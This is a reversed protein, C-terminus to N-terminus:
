SSLFRVLSGATRNNSLCSGSDTRHSKRRVLRGEHYSNKLRNEDRWLPRYNIYHFCERQQRPNTLDFAACPKIHDLEWEGQSDWSMRIDFQKEIHIVFEATSCGLLDISSGRKVGTEIVKRIRRRLLHKLRFQIDNHYRYAFRQAETMGRTIPIPRTPKVSLCKRVRREAKTIIGHIKRKQRCGNVSRYSLKEAKLWRWLTPKGIRLTRRIFKEQFGVRRLCIVCQKVPLTDGKLRSHGSM